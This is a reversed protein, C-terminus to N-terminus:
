KGTVNGIYLRYDATANGIGFWEYEAHVTQRATVGLDIRLMNKTINQTLRNIKDLGLWFEGVLNGFGHKYDDQTSNSNVSGDMKEQIVTWGGGATTQDCYVNFAGLGDPDFLYVGSVRRGSKYLEACNKAMSSLIFISSITHM